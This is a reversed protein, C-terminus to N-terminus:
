GRLAFQIVKYYTVSTLVSRHVTKFYFCRLVAPSYSSCELKQLATYGLLKLSCENPIPNQKCQTIYNSSSRMTDYVIERRSSAQGGTEWAGDANIDGCIHIYIYIDVYVTHKTRLIHGLSFFFVVITYYFLLNWKELM